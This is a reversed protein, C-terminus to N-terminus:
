PTNCANAGPMPPGPQPTRGSAAADLPVEGDLPHRTAELRM